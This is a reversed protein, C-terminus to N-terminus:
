MQEKNRRFQGPTMGHIKYFVRNFYYQQSFGVEEAIEGINLETHILYNCATSIRVSHLYEVFSTNLEKRFLKTIYPISIGFQTSLEALTIERNYNADIYRVIRELKPTYSPKQAYETSIELLLARLLNNMKLVSIQMDRMDFCFLRRFIDAVEYNDTCHTLQEIHIVPNCKEYLYVLRSKVSQDYIKIQIDNEQLSAAPTIFHVYCFTVETVEIPRYFTGQPIFLIDGANVTIEKSEIVMKFAGELLYLLLHTSKTSGKHWCGKKHTKGWYLVNIPYDMNILM